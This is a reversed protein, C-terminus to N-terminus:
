NNEFEGRDIKLTDTNGDLVKLTLTKGVILNRKKDIYFPIVEERCERLVSKAYVIDDGFYEKEGFWDTGAAQLIRYRGLPVKGDYRTGARVFFSIERKKTDESVLRIVYNLNSAKADINFSA